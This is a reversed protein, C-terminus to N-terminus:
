ATIKTFHITSLPNMQPSPLPAVICSFTCFILVDKKGKLLIIILDNSYPICPLFLPKAPTNTIPCLIPCCCKINRFYSSKCSLCKNSPLQNSLVEFTFVIFTGDSKPYTSRILLRNFGVCAVSESLVKAGNYVGGGM